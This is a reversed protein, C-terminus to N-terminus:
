QQIFWVTNTEESASNISHEVNDKQKVKAQLCSALVEKSNRYTKYDQTCANLLM